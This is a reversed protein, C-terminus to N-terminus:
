PATPSPAPSARSADLARTAASGSARRRDIAGGSSSAAACASSTLAAWSAPLAPASEGRPPAPRRCSARRPRRTRRRRRASARRAACTPCELWRSRGGCSLHDSGAPRPEDADGVQVGEACASRPARAARSRSGRGSGVRIGLREDDHRRAAGRLEASATRRRAVDDRAVLQVVAQVRPQRARRAAQARELAVHMACAAARAAAAAPTRATTEAGARVRRRSAASRRDAAGGTAAPSASRPASRRPARTRVVDVARACRIRVGSATEPRRTERTRAGRGRTRRAAVLVRQALPQDGLRRGIRDAVDDDRDGVPDGVGVPQEDASKSRSVRM